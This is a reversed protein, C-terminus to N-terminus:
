RDQCHVLLLEDDGVDLIEVGYMDEGCYQGDDHRTKPQGVTDEWGKSHRANERLWMPSSTALQDVKFSVVSSRDDSFMM